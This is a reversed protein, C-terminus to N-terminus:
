DFRQSGCLYFCERMNLSLSETLMFIFSQILTTITSASLITQCFIEWLVLDDLFLSSFNAILYKSIHL